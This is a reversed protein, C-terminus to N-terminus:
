AAIGIIWGGDGRDAVGINKLLRVTLMGCVMETDFPVGAALGLAVKDRDTLEAAPTGARPLVTFQRYVDGLIDDNLETM